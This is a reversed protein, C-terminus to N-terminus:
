PTPSANAQPWPIEVWKTYGHKEVGYVRAHSPTSCGAEDTINTQLAYSGVPTFVIQGGVCVWAEVLYPFQLSDDGARLVLRDWSVTVQNGKRAAAVGTLPGYYPSQPLVVQAPDVPQVSTMDGKVNMYKANMWCPNNGGIAQVEIWLADNNQVRGLVNLNSGGLLGYKYLYAAGPGYRCSVHDANIEGRLITYTPILTPTDTETPAPTSTLTPTASPLPSPTESATPLSTAVPSATPTATPPMYAPEVPVACALVALILIMSALLAKKM